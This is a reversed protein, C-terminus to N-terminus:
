FYVYGELRADVGLPNARGEVGLAVDKALTARVGGRADFTSVLHQGPLYSVNITALGLLWPTIRARIGGFPGVAVRVFSGGIGDFDPSFLITADAMAFVAYHENRTAFTIGVAADGGHAFCDRTTCGTDHVREAFGRLRFSALKEYRGIPNLSMIEAFTIEDLTLSPHTASFRIRTDLFQVTALEPEGNPPDIMDHLALRIGLTAYTEGFQSDGGMGFDFRIPGHALHPAKDAPIPLGEYRQKLKTRESPVYRIGKVLGPEASLATVADAPFVLTKVHEILDVRPVAAEIIELLRFACNGTFYYYDVKAHRLEWLHFTVLRVEEPTLDLDYDWMERDQSSSYETMKEGFTQYHFKGHFLGAVGKVVYVFPNHTDVDATFELTVDDPSSPPEDSRKGFRMFTHGFMSAPDALFNATFVVSVAHADIRKLFAAREPCAPMPIALGLEAKLWEFRAPFLCLAHADQSKPVVPVFFAHLTAVLEAEPDERGNNALFFESPQIDGKATLAGPHVHLLRLWEMREALHMERALEVYSDLPEDARALKPRALLTIALALLGLALRGGSRIM